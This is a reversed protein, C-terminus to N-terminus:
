QKQGGVNVWRWAPSAAPPGPTLSPVPSGAEEEDEFVASGGGHCVMVWMGVGGLDESVSDRGRRGRVGLEEDDSPSKGGAAAQPALLSSV